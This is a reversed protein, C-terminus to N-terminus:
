DQTQIYKVNNLLTIWLLDDDDSVMEIITKGRTVNYIDVGVSCETSLIYPGTTCKITRCGSDLGNEANALQLPPFSIKKFDAFQVDAFEPVCEAIEFGFEKPTCLGCLM